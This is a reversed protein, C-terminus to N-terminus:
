IQRCGPAYLDCRTEISDSTVWMETQRVRRIDPHRPQFPSTNTHVPWRNASRGSKIEQQGEDVVPSAALIAVVDVDIGM